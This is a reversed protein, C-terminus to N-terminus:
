SERDKSRRHRQRRTNIRQNQRTRRDDTPVDDLSQASEIAGIPGLDLTRRDSEERARRDEQRRDEEQERKEILHELEKPVPLRHNM